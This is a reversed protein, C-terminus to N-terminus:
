SCRLRSNINQPTCGLKDAIQKHNLGKRELSLIKNIDIVKRKKFKNNANLRKWVLVYSCGLKEAILSPSDGQEYLCIIETTSIKHNFMPNSEGKMKGKMSVSRKQLMNQYDDESMRDKVNVGYMPNNEGSVMKRMKKRRDLSFKQPHKRITARIKNKTEESLKKGRRNSPIGRNGLRGGQQININFPNNLEGEIYYIELQMLEDLNNSTDLIEKHFFGCGYKKRFDKVVRGSGYYGDEFKNSKHLGIYYHKDLSSGNKCITIRYIYGIM